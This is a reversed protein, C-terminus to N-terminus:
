VRFSPSGMVTLSAAWKRPTLLRDYVNGTVNEALNQLVIAVNPHLGLAISELHDPLRLFLDFVRNRVVRFGFAYIRAFGIVENSTGAGGNSYQSTLLTVNRAPGPLRSRARFVKPASAGCEKITLM